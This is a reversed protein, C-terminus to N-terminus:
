IVKALRKSLKEDNFKSIQLSKKVLGKTKSRDKELEDQKPYFMGIWYKNGEVQEEKRDHYEEGSFVNGRVFSIIGNVSKLQNNAISLNMNTVFNLIPTPVEFKQFIGVVHYDKNKHMVELLNELVEIIKKYEKDTDSYKFNMCIAYKESNSSRSTLPKVFYVEDYLDRLLSIIKMSTNTFTEFFKCVFQGGKKQISIANIIESIILRFGEQEQLNENLNEFGGDATVLDCKSKIEGGFLRYTKPDTLDGNCKDDYKGATQKLYTKQMFVRKPSEKEYYNIFNKDIEPVYSKGEPHLTVSHYKDNKSVGKKAFMDRYSITAQIFSGPGEALHASVFNDKKLDILDFYMIIEWLKYFARSLIEPKKDLGFYEFSTSSISKNYNDITTEYKNLVRWVQKKGEFAKTAEGMNNKSQHIFHHFGYEFQPYDINNSFEANNESQFIKTNLKPMQFCLPRTDSYNESENDNESGSSVYSETEKSETEKSETSESIEKRNESKPPM